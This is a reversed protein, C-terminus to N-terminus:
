PPLYPMGVMVDSVGDGDLDPVMDVDLGAKLYVLGGLADWLANSGAGSLARARGGDTILGNDYDPAGAIVDPLLDGNLDPAGVVSTGLHENTQTGGWTHLVSGDVGSLLYVMGANGNVTHYPAGVLVDPTGDLNRDGAPALASGFRHGTGEGDKTWLISADLGSHVTVRGTMSTFGVAGMAFESRGDANLDGVWAVASGAQDFQNQGTATLLVTGSAGSIVYAKGRNDFASGVDFSPAGSLVDPVTDGNIDRGGDVWAGFQHGNAEGSATFIVSGDAMSLVRVTGAGLITDPCGVVLDTISDGNVDGANALSWGAAFGLTPGENVHTLTQAPAVAILAIAACSILVPRM